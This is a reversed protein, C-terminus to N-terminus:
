IVFKLNTDIPHCASLQPKQSYRGMLVERMNQLLSLYTQDKGAEMVRIFSYSMAGTAVGNEKADASTQNDKCGSMMIVDGPATKTQRQKEHAKENEGGNTALEFLGTVRSMVGSMDGQMYSTVAGLLDKGAEEALNPEKLVGKTSYMYPLDLVSGSHCSDFLATLRVGAALPRVLMAHLEDDVIHGNVEYDMPYIVEDYGDSEDGDLDKTQGGHGSYHFFLSDNPQADKILWGIADRINQGTPISRQTTNNDTLVVMNEKPFGHSQLFQAVNNVDNICGNLQNKTGIYNIGVLLAKKRGTCNSYRYNYNTGAGFSQAHTSPAQLLNGASHIQVNNGYSQEQFASQSNAQQQYQQNSWGPPPVGPRGQSYGQNQGEQFQGQYQGQYQGQQGYQNQDQQGYQNQGQQGYQYNQGQQGYQNQGQQGYQYNQGQLYQANSNGPFGPPPGSPRSM